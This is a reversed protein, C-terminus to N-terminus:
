CIHPASITAIVCALLVLVVGSSAGTTNPVQVIVPYGAIIRRKEGNAVAKYNGSDSHQVNRLLLSYNQAFFEARDKYKPSVIPHGGNNYKVINDINNFRWFFDDETGVATKNVDLLLDSGPAVSLPDSGDRQRSTQM